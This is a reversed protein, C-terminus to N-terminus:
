SAKTNKKTKVPAAKFSERLAIGKERAAVAEEVTDFAGLFLTVEFRGSPLTHIGQVKAPKPKKAAAKKKAPKTRAPAANPASAPAPAEVMVTM